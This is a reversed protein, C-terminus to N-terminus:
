IERGQSYKIISFRKSMPDDIVLWGLGEIERELIYAGAKLFVVPKKYHNDNLRAIRDHYLKIM